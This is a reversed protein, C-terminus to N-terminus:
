KRSVSTHLVHERMFCSSLVGLVCVVFAFGLACQNSFQFGQHVLEALRHDFSIDFSNDQLISQCWDLLQSSGYQALLPEDTLVNNYLRSQLCSQYILSALAVGLTSGTARFAYQISTVQAQHEVSVSAILALLTVTLMTAYGFGPLFMLLYEVVGQPSGKFSFAFLSLVGVAFLSNTAVSFNWYKGTRKMYMGALMSGSAIGVFNSMSRVGIDWPTFNYVTHWFVPVYYMVTFTTMTMFWNTFSSACVTRNEWLLRLPVMPNCTTCETYAFQLSSATLLVGLLLWSSRSLQTPDSLLSIATMLLIMSAILTFSGVFDVMETVTCWKLRKGRKLELWLLGRGPSDPPLDLVVVIMLACVLAMPVQVLFAWRWGIGQQLVAGLVSGSACGLSFCINVLGQYVGRKRLPIIDSTTITSLTAQGGGGIGAVFRGTSLVWINNTWPSGCIACGLAFTLNSLILLIKRGFIDSLKGYLPQFASCSLLYSTAIWSMQSSADLDSAITPLLTAVITTDLASLFSGMLLALVTIRVKTPPLESHNTTSEEGTDVLATETTPSIVPVLLATTEDSMNRAISLRITSLLFSIVM